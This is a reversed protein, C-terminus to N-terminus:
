LCLHFRVAQNHGHPLLSGLFGAYLHLVVGAGEGQGVAPVELLQQLPDGPLSGEAQHVDVKFLKGAKLDAQEVLYSLVSLVNYKTPPPPPRSPSSPQDLSVRM